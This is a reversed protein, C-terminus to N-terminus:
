QYILQIYKNYWMYKQYVKWTYDKKYYKWSEAAVSQAICYVVDGLLM